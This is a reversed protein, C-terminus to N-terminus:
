SGCSEVNAVGVSRRFTGAVHHAPPQGGVKPRLCTFEDAVETYRYRHIVHLFIETMSCVRPQTSRHRSEQPPEVRVSGIEPTGGGGLVKKKARPGRGSNM